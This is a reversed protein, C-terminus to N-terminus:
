DRYWFVQGQATEMTYEQTFRILRRVIGGVNNFEGTWCILGAHDTHSQARGAFPYDRTVIVAQNAAAYPLHETDDDKGTMDVEVARIIEIGHKELERSVAKPMHEDFYFKVKTAMGSM